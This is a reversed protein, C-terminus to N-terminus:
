SRALRRRGAAAVGMAGTLLLVFSAPEPTVASTVSLDDLALFGNDDEEAFTVTDMGTGNFFMSFETYGPQVFNVLNVIQTEDISATLTNPVIGDSALFFNFVFPQGATDTFTQSITGINGANGLGAFFTGSHPTLSDVAPFVGTANLNAVNYGSFDGTEFGSNVLLNIPAAFAPSAITAAVIACALLSQGFRKM